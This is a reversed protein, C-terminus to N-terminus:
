WEQQMKYLRYYEGQKQLLEAHSGVELVEGDKMVIIKDVSRCIGIRHTVIITTKEKAIKLFLKMIHTEMVPDLAATPEDLVTISSNKFLCRAIALKQWQGISLERGGFESGLRQNLTESNMLEDLDVAKLIQSIKDINDMSKWESIAINEKISMEYKVFDQSVISINKRLDDLNLTKISQSGYFIEGSEPKYLGTIIKALTTKGSGNNGVIAVSENKKINFSINNLARKDTNPYSFSVNKVIIDNFDLNLIDKGQSEEQLDIFQYYDDVFASCEPIRGLNILFYKAALQFSSFATISSVFMGFNLKNDLLLLLSIIVSLLYGSKCFMECWFFSKIDKNKFKWIENNIEDRTKYLKNEIYKEIGFIRLEKVAQKEAFLHYLYDRRREKTAQYKKLEYFEKGRILRIVFYPIISLLSIVALIPNFGSLICLTSIVKFIETLINFYSLSLDSFRGQEICNRARKLKNMSEIDEYQILSLRSGKKGLERGLDMAIKSDIKVMCSYFISNTIESIIFIGWILFLYIINEKIEKVYIDDLFIAITWTNAAVILSQGIMCLVQIVLTGPAIRWIDNLSRYVLKKIKM